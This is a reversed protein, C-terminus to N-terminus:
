ILYIDYLVLEIKKKNYWPTLLEKTTCTEFIINIDQGFISLSKLSRDSLIIKLKQLNNGAGLKTSDIAKM